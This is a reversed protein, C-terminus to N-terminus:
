KIDVASFQKLRVEKHEDTSVPVIECLASLKQEYHPNGLLANVEAGEELWACVRYRGAELHDIVFSANGSLYKRKPLDTPHQPVPTITIVGRPYSRGREHLDVSGQISAGSRALTIVAEGSLTSLDFEGGQFTRGDIEVKRVVASGPFEVRYTGAPLGGGSTFTSTPTASRPDRIPSFGRAYIGMNPLFVNLDAPRPEVPSGDEYVVKGFFNAGQTVEFRFDNVDRDIIEFQSGGRVAGAPTYGAWYPGPPVNPASFTGDPLLSVGIARDYPTTWVFPFPSDFGVRRILVLGSGRQAEPPIGFVRGSISYYKSKQLEIRMGSLNTGPIVTLSGSQELFIAGPYLTDVFATHKTSAEPSEDSQKLQQQVLGPSPRARLYYTGPLIAPFVYKGQKDTQVAQTLDLTRLGSRWNEELIEVTTDTLPNGDRDEVSGEVASSLWMRLNVPAPKSRSSLTISDTAGVAMAYGERKASIRYQDGVTNSFAAIGQAATTKSYTWRRTDSRSQFTPLPNRKLEILVGPLGQGTAGDIVQVSLDVGEGASPEPPAIESPAPPSVRVPAPQEQQQPGAWVLGTTLIL